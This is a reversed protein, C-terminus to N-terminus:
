VRHFGSRTAQAEFRRGLRFNDCVTIMAIHDTKVVRGSATLRSETSVAEVRHQENFTEVLEHEGLYITKSVSTCKNKSSPTFDIFTPGERSGAVMLIAKSM